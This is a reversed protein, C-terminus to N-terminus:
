QPRDTHDTLFSFFSPQDRPTQVDSRNWWGGGLAAFLAATDALRNRQAVVLSILARQYIQQASLIETYSVDGLELRKRTLALADESKRAFAVSKQIALADTQLATLSDAVNKFATIVTSRYQSSAEDFTERAAIERQFLTGGHFIPATVVGAASWVGSGPGFLQDVGLANSGVGGTLSVSPLRNAVAVGILASAYNMNASAARIDPRQEVLQSPFSVPIMRPLKFVRLDFKEPPDESPLGGTLASLLHRQQALQRQLPPLSQEIEALQAEQTVIDSEAIVGVNLQKRLMTLLDSAINIIKYTVAMQSRLSAEEIAATVISSTLTLYAAELQFRQNDAQAQLSEVTRRVGGFVDPNYSLLVQGVFFNYIQTSSAVGNNSAVGNKQRSAEFNGDASPFFAGQAAATNANAVRLASQAAALDPNHELAREVISKLGTSGFLRWWDGPLDKGAAFRQATGLAVDSGSTGQPQPGPVYGSVDPAPPTVFDPGVACGFLLAGGLVFVLCRPLGGVGRAKFARARLLFVIQLIRLRRGNAMYAICGAVAVGSRGIAGKM